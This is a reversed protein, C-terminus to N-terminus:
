IMSGTNRHQRTCNVNICSWAHRAWGKPGTNPRREPTTPSITTSSTNLPPIEFAPATKRRPSITSRGAYDCAGAM